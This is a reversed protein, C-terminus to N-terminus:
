PTILELDPFYTRYVKADRTLLPVALEAAHAGILFDALVNLREGGAKRYHSFAHGARFLASRPVRRVSLGFHLIHEELTEVDDYRSALEAFVVDNIFVDGKVRADTLRDVSWETWETARGTLDVMVNTDVLTM